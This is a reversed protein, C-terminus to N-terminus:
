NMITIQGALNSFFVHPRDGSFEIPGAFVRPAHDLRELFCTQHTDPNGLVVAPFPTAVQFGQDNDFLQRASTSANAHGVGDVRETREGYDEAARFFLLLFIKWVDGRALPQYSIRKRFLFRPGIRAAELGQGNAVAIVVDNVAVLLPGGIRASRIQERNEGRNVRFAAGPS